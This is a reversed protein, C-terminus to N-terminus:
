SVALPEGLGGGVGVEGEQGDEQLHQGGVRVGALDGVEGSGHGGEGGAHGESLVKLQRGEEVKVEGFEQLSPHVM